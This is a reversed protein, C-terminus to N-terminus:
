ARRDVLEVVLGVHLHRLRLQRGDGRLLGRAVPQARHGDLVAGPVTGSLSGLTSTATLAGCRPSANAPARATISRTLASAGIQFTSTVSPRPARADLARKGGM